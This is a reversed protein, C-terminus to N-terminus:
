EKLLDQKTFAKIVDYMFNERWSWDMSLFTFPQDVYGFKLLSLYIPYLVDFLGHGVNGFWLNDSLVSLEIAEVDQLGQVYATLEELSDFKMVAPRWDYSITFKKVYPLDVDDITLFYLVGHISYLNSYEISTNNDITRYTSIM